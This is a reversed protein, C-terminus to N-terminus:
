ELVQMNMPCFSVTFIIFTQLFNSVNPESPLSLLTQLGQGVIYEFQNFTNLSPLTPLSPHCNGMSVWEVRKNDRLIIITLSHSQGSSAMSCQQILSSLYWLKREHVQWKIWKEGLLCLWLQVTAITIGSLNTLKVVMDLCWGLMQNSFLAWLLPLQPVGNWSIRLAWIMVMM